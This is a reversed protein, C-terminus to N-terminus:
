SVQELLINSFDISDSSDELCLGTQIDNQTQHLVPNLEVSGKTAIAEVQGNLSNRRYTLGSQGSLECSSKCYKM